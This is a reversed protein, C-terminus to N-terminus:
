AKSGSDNDEKGLEQVQEHIIEQNQHAPPNTEQLLQTSLFNNLAEEFLRAVEEFDEAILGSDKAFTKGQFEEIIRGWNIGGSSNEKM